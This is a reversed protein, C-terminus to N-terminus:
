QARASSRWWSNRRGLGSEMNVPAQFVVFTELHPFPSLRAASPTPSSPYKCTGDLALAREVIRHVLGRVTNLEEETKFLLLSHFNGTHNITM